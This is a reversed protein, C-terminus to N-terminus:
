VIKEGREFNVADSTNQLLHLRVARDEKLGRLLDKRPDEVLQFRPRRNGGNSHLKALEGVRVAEDPPVFRSNVDPDGIDELAGLCHHQFSQRVNQQGFQHAARYGFNVGLSVAPIEIALLHAPAQLQNLLSAASFENGSAFADM